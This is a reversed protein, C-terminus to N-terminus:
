RTKSYHCNLYDQHIYINADHPLFCARSVDKGSPDVELRYTVRIYNAIAIFWNLHNHKELDIAVVWKIGTGSPSVFLLQTEFFKDRLLASKLATVDEIHDFDLVLLGSHQILADASRKTFTGSFTVYDFWEAKFNRAEVKDNIARLAATERKYKDSRILQYVEPLTTEGKPNTTKVPCKFFSFKAPAVWPEFGIYPHISQGYVANDTNM